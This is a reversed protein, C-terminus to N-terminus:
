CFSIDSNRWWDRMYIINTIYDHPKDLKM